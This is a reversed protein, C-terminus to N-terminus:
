DEELIRMVASFSRNYKEDSITSIVLCNAGHHMSEIGGVEAPLGASFLNYAQLIDGSVGNMGPAGHLSIMFGGIEKNQIQYEM